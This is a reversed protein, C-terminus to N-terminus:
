TFHQVLTVIGWIGFGVVALGALAMVVAVAGFAAFLKDLPDKNSM